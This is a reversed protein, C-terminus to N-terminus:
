LGGKRQNDVALDRMFLSIARRASNAVPELGLTAGKGMTSISENAPQIAGAAPETKLVASDTATSLLAKAPEVTEDATRRTLSAMASSAEAFSQELAVPAAASNTAALDSPSPDAGTSGSHKSIRFGLAVVFLICAAMALIQLWRQATKRSSPRALDSLVTAVLRDRLEVSPAPKEL